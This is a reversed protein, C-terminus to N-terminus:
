RGFMSCSIGFCTLFGPPPLGMRSPAGCGSVSLPVSPASPTRSPVTLSSPPGRQHCATPARHSRSTPM